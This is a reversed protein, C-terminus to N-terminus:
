GESGEAEFDQLLAMMKEHILYLPTKALYEPTFKCYAIFSTLEDGELRTSEAVWERNFKGYAKDMLPKDKLIDQMKRKEKGKKTLGEVDFTIGMSPGFVPNQLDKETIPPPGFPPLSAMGYIEFTDPPDTELILQKFRDYDPLVGVVVEQLYITDTSILFEVEDKEFWSQEVVWGLLQYGTFSIMLTDSIQVPIKFRGSGDSIALKDSTLNQIHAGILPEQTELDKIVGNVESRQSFVAFSLLLLSILLAPKM